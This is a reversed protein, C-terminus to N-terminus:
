WFHSDGSLRQRAIQLNTLRCDTDLICRRAFPRTAIVTAGNVRISFYLM